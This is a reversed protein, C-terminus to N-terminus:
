ARAGPADPVARTYPLAQMEAADPLRGNLPALEERLRKLRAPDNALLLLAWALTAASTESGALLLMGVEDLLAGEDLVPLGDERRAARLGPLLGGEGEGAAALEAAM